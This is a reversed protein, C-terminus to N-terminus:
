KKRGKGNRGAGLLYIDVTQDILHLQTGSRSAACEYEIEQALDVRVNRLLNALDLGAGHERYAVDYGFTEWVSAFRRRGAYSVFEVYLREDSLAADLTIKLTVSIM